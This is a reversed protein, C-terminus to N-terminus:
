RKTVACFPIANRKRRSALLNDAHIQVRKIGFQGELGFGLEHEDHEVAEAVDRRL